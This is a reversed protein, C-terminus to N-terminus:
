QRGRMLSSIYSDYENTAWPREGLAQQVQTSINGLQVDPARPPAAGNKISDGIMSGIMGGIMNGKNQMDESQPPGDFIGFPSDAFKKLGSMLGANSGGATALGTGASNLASTGLAAQAANGIGGLMSGLTSAGAAGAGAGAAGFMSGLAPAMFAM